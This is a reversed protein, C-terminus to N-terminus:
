LTRSTSSARTGGQGMADPGYIRRVPEDYHSRGRDCQSRTTRGGGTAANEPPGPPCPSGPAESRAPQTTSPNAGQTAGARGSGRAQSTSVSRVAPRRSREIDCPRADPVVREGRHRSAARRRAVAYRRLAVSG